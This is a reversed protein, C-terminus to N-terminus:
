HTWFKVEINGNTDSWINNTGVLTKIQQPTLQYHIPENLPYVLKANLSTLNTKFGELNGTYNTDKIRLLSHVDPHGMISLDPMNNWYPFAVTKYANCMLKTRDGFTIQNQLVFFGSPSSEEYWSSAFSDLAVEAYKSVLEGTIPNFYGGWIVTPFEFSYKVGHYPEFACGKDAIHCMM